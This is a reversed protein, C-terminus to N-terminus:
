DFAMEGRAMESRGKNERRLNTNQKKRTKLSAWLRISMSVEEKSLYTHKV